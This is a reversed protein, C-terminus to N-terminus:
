VGAAKKPARASVSWCAATFRVQTGHVFPDFAARVTDIVQMRTEEDAEQLVLGVPGLRTLYGPVDKEPLTCDVDIPQIDVGTWGSEELIASVRHRDAFAFQGPAGPRRAPLNPLLPATAREATTM